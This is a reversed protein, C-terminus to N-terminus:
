KLRKIFAAIHVTELFIRGHIAINFLKGGMMGKKMNFM